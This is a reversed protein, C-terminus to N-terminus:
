DTPDELTMMDPGLMGVVTKRKRTGPNSSEGGGPSGGLTLDRLLGYDMLVPPRYEKRLRLQPAAQRGEMLANGRLAFSTATACHSGGVTASEGAVLITEVVAGSQHQAM